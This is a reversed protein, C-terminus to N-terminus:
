PEPEPESKQCTLTATRTGVKSLNRNQSKVRYPEFETDLAYFTCNEFKYIFDQRKVYYAKKSPLFHKM